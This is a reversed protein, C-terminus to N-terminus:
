CMLGKPQPSPNLSTCTWQERGQSLSSFVSNNHSSSSLSGQTDPGSLYHTMHPWPQAARWLGLGNDLHRIQSRLGSNGPNWKREQSKMVKKPSLQDKSLSFHESKWPISLFSHKLCPVFFMKTHRDEKWGPGRWSSTAAGHGHIGISGRYLRMGATSCGQCLRQSGLLFCVGFTM